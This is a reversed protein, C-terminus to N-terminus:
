FSRFLAMTVTRFPPKWGKPRRLDFEALDHITYIQHKTRFQALVIHPVFRKQSCYKNKILGM